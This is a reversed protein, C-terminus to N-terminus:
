TMSTRNCRSQPKAAKPLNQPVCPDQGHNSPPAPVYHFPMVVKWERRCRGAKGDLYM